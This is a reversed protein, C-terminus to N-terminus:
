YEVTIIGIGLRQARVRCRAITEENNSGLSGRPVVLDLSRGRIQEASINVGGWKAGNFGALRNVYYNIRAELQWPEQYSPADLDISKISTIIGNALRDIVPYNPPLSTGRMREGAVGRAGWGLEWITPPPEGNLEMYRAAKAAELTDNLRQVDQWSPVWPNSTLMELEPNVPDVAKLERYALSFLETRLEETPDLVDEDREEREDEEAGAAPIFIPRDSAPRYVAPIFPSAGRSSLPWRGHSPATGSGAATWRGRADRPEDPNYGAKGLLGRRRTTLPREQEIKALRRVIARLEADVTDLRRVLDLFPLQETRPRSPAFGQNCRAGLAVACAHIAQVSDRGTDRSHEDTRHNFM